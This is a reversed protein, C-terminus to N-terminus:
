RCGNLQAQRLTEQAAELEKKGAESPAAAPTRSAMCRAFGPQGQLMLVEQCSRGEREHLEVPAAKTQELKKELLSIRQKALACSDQAPSAAAPAPAPAPPVGADSSPVAPIIMLEAGETVRRRTGQPITAPDDTFHRQGAGDVWEYITQGSLLAVVLM